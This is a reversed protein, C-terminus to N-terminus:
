GSSGGGIEQRFFTKNERADHWSHMVGIPEPTVNTAMSPKGDDIFRIGQRNLIVRAQVEIPVPGAMGIIEDDTICANVIM